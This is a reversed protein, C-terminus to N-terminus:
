NRFPVVPHGKGHWVWGVRVSIQQIYTYMNCIIFPSIIFFLFSYFLALSRGKGLCEDVEKLWNISHVQVSRLYVPVIFFIIVTTLLNITTGIQEFLSKMTNKLEQICSTQKHSQNTHQEQEINKPANSKQKTVQAYSVGPQTCLTQKIQAPPTHIKSCLPQYLKKQLDKYVVVETTKHDSNRAVSASTGPEM